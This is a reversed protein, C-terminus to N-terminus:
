LKDLVDKFNIKTGFTVIAAANMVAVEFVDKVIGKVYGSCSEPKSTCLGGCQYMGEPCKEWCVPGEGTFNNKCKPYCLLGIM